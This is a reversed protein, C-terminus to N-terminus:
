VGKLFKHRLFFVDIENMHWRKIVNLVIDNCIASFSCYSLLRSTQKTPLELSERVFNLCNGNQVFNRYLCDVDLVRNLSKLDFYRFNQLIKNCHRRFVVLRYDGIYITRGILEILSKEEVNNVINKFSFAPIYLTTLIYNSVYFYNM